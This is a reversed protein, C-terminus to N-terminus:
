LSILIGIFVFILNILYILYVTNKHNFGLRLLRHHLHNRDPSFPSKGSIIRRFIVYIMDGLFLLVFFITGFYLTPIYNGNSYFHSIIGLYSLIFGLFYSGGDGMLIIAPHKNYQLFGLCSGITICSLTCSYLDHNIIGIIFFGICSIISIGAALGDLGDIWNLANTIAVIWFLTLFFGLLEGISISPLIESFMSFNVSKFIFGQGVIISAIFFQFFLRKIPSLNLLDDALGTIFFLSAGVLMFQMRSDLLPYSLYNNGLGILVLYSIVFGLFIAIGGLRVLPKIHQKRKDPIDILKFRIGIDRIKPVILWTILASILTSAAFLVNDM